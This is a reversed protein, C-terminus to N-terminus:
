RLRIPCNSGSTSCRAPQHNGKQMSTSDGPLMTHAQIQVEPHYPQKPTTSATLAAEQQVMRTTEMQTVLMLAHPPKQSAVAGQDKTNYAQAEATPM